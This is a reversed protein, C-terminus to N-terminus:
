KGGLHIHKNHGFNNDNISTINYILYDKLDEQTQIDIDLTGQVVIDGMSFNAANLNPNKDYWMRCDFDNANDYGKNIGSGEGGFFWVTLNDSTGYNYRTWKELHTAVDLGSKHYVTISSNTIM